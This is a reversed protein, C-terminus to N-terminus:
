LEEIQRNFNRSDRIGKVIQDAPEDGVWAGFSKAFLNKSKKPKSKLSQTLKSILDRRADPRLTQLFAMYSDIISIKM